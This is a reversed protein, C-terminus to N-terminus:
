QSRLQDAGGEAEGLGPHQVFQRVAVLDGHRLQPGGEIQVGSIQAADHGAEDGVPQDVSLGRRGVRTAPEHAQRGRPVRGEGFEVRQLRVRDIAQDPRQVLVLSRLEDRCHAPDAPREVVM